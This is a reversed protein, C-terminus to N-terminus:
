TVWISTRILASTPKSLQLIANSVLWMIQCYLTQINDFNRTALIAKDWNSTSAEFRTDSTDTGITGTAETSYVKNSSLLPM